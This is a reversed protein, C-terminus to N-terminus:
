AAPVVEAAPAEAPAAVEAAPAEAPAEVPAVVEAAAKAAAEEAAKAAAEAAAKAAAEEAAKAAAEAAAKAAAEEAAKAAAEAAAKAAAEEAAKAAAEAAAKAAAEEAAKREAELREAEEKAKREAELREAEEKAKREAELREAEEKAKREAELREAEEKAKREAELREAERRAIESETLGDVVKEKKGDAYVIVGNNAVAEFNDWDWTLGAFSILNNFNTIKMYAAITADKVSGTYKNGNAFTHTINNNTIVSKGATVKYGTIKYTKDPTITFNVFDGNPRTWVSGKNEVEYRATTGNKFKVEFYTAKKVVKRTRKENTYTAKMLGDTKRKYKKDGAYQKLSEFYWKPVKPYVTYYDDFTYSDNTFKIQTNKRLWHGSKKGKPHIKGKNVIILIQKDDSVVLTFEGSIVFKHDTFSIEGGSIKGKYFSGTVSCRSCPYLTGQGHPTKKVAMGEYRAYKNFKIKKHKPKPAAVVAGVSILLTLVLLLIKKM